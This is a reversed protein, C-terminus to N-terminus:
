LKRKIVELERRWEAEMEELTGLTVEASIKRRKLLRAAEVRHFGDKLLYRTGDFCVTVPEIREGRSMLEVYEEIREESLNEPPQFVLCLQDIALMKRM